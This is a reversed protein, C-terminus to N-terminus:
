SRLVFFFFPFLTLFLFVFKKKETKGGSKKEFHVFVAKECVSSRVLVDDFLSQDVKTKSQTEKDAFLHFLLSFFCFFIKVLSSLFKMTRWMRFSFWEVIVREEDIM